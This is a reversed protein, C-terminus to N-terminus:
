DLWAIERVLARLVAYGTNVWSIAATHPLGAVQPQPWRASGHRYGEHGAALTPISLFPCSPTPGPERMPARPMYNTRQTFHKFGAEVQVSTLLDMKAMSGARSCSAKPIPQTSALSIFEKTSRPAKESNAVAEEIFIAGLHAQCM